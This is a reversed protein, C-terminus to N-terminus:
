RESHRFVYRHMEQYIYWYSISIFDFCPLTYSFNILVFSLYLLWTMNLKDDFQKNEIFCQHTQTSNTHAILCVFFDNISQYVAYHCRCVLAHGIHWWVSLHTDTTGCQTGYCTLFSRVLKLTSPGYSVGASTWWTAKHFVVSTTPKKHMKPPM